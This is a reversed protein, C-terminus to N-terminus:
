FTNKLSKGRCSFELISQIVFYELVSLVIEKLNLISLLFYM